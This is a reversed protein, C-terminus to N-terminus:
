KEVKFTLNSDSYYEDAGTRNTKIEIYYDRGVEWNAFNIKFYNGNSDCSVQTYTGFPIIIEHTIADKIQYWTYVPLYEIDNYGYNNTYTALPYKDRGFVGIRAVSGLTYRSKLRKFTVNIDNATLEPLSGPVFEQDDWGIRLKPQYITNTEKSFYQLIGYDTTNTEYSSPFKLLFGHNPITNNIWENTIDLVDINLDSGLYVLTESGSVTSVIDGGSVVWNSGSQDPWTWTVGESTIDDFRTGIGMDWSQSVPYVLVELDTPIEQSECEKLILEASEVTADPDLAVIATTIEDIDFKLLPHSIDKVAGYYTKSIELVEDLGTNQTPQQLYVTADKIATQLYYM